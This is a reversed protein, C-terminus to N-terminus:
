KERARLMADAVEYAQPAIWDAISEGTLPPGLKWITSNALMGELAKAAFYDLLTMGYYTVDIWQHSGSGDPIKETRKGGFAPGGDPTHSM